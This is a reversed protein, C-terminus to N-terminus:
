KARSRPEKPPLTRAHAASRLLWPEIAPGALLAPPAAVFARMPRGAVPEFVSPGNEVTFRALDDDALRLVM